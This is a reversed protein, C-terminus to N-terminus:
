DVLSYEGDAPEIATGNDLMTQLRREIQKTPVNNSKMAIEEATLTRSVVRLTEKIRRVREAQPASQGINTIDADLEGSENIGIDGLSQGVVRIARNIDEATIEESLRVRASAEAFRQVADLKRATIPVTNGESSVRINVFYEKLSEQVDDDKIVPRCNQRAYAIHARLTAKLVDPEILDAESATIDGRDLLGSLQRTKMIHDAM